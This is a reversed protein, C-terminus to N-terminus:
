RSWRKMELLKRVDEQRAAVMEAGHYTDLDYNGDRDKATQDDLRHHVFLIDNRFIAIEATPQDHAHDSGTCPSSIQGLWLDCHCNLSIHGLTDYVRRGVVPFTIDAKELTDRRMFQIRELCHPADLLMEDWLPTLMDSDDNWVFLLDGHAAAALQNYYDHGRKYGMRESHLVTNTPSFAQAADTIAPATADDDDYYVILELDDPEAALDSLSELSRRLYDPRGRTPLLISISPKM